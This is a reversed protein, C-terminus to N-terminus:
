FADWLRPYPRRPVQRPMSAHVPEEEFARKPEAQGSTSDSASPACTAEAAGARAVDHNTLLEKSSILVTDPGSPHSNQPTLLPQDPKLFPQDSAGFTVTRGNPHAVGTATRNQKSPWRSPRNAVAEDGRKKIAAAWESLAEIDFHYHCCHK